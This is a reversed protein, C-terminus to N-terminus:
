ILFGNKWPSEDETGEAYGLEEVMMVEVFKAPEQSFISVVQRATERSLGKDEYIQCMEEREGPMNNECERNVCDVMPLVM